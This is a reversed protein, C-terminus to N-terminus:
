RESKPGCEVEESHSHQLYEADLLAWAKESKRLATANKLPGAAVADVALDVQKNGAEARDSFWLGSAHSGRAVV